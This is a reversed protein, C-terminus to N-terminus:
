QGRFDGAPAAEDKFRQDILNMYRSATENDDSDLALSRAFWQRAAAYDHILAYHWGICSMVYFGNPDLVEAQRFQVDAEAHRGLWDLCMGARLPNYVYYPNLTSSRRYDQLAREALEKYNDTEAFSNVRWVEALDYRTKFNQPEVAAAQLLCAAEASSVPVQADARNLWLTERTRRWGQLSLYVVGALLVVTLCGKLAPGPTVWWRETAFRQQSTLLAVWTLGLAANAPIHLNFDMVSHLSLGLLAGGAGAFFAFRNSYGSNFDAEARQIHPWTKALGIVFATLGALVILGGVTGWDALLNLYDNHARDPQLQMREPRYARFRWDYHAPGAGFWFNDRWINVAAQWMDLRMDLDKRSADSVITQVNQDNIAAAHDFHRYGVYGTGGLLLVLLLVSLLRHHRHTALLVLTTVVGAGTALWGGRSLTVALGAGMMLLAYGLFVRAAAPLRGAVLFALAPPILLELFCSFNNPSVYTGFARGPYPSYHGWIFRVHHLHQYIALFSIITALAVLVFTAAQLAEQRFLHNMVAFFFFGLVLVQIMEQRAVYEIDATLYRAVAYVMFALAVWCIPPWFLQSRPGIWLRAGWVLLVAILLGQVVLFQAAHVAGLGVPGFVLIVLLLGLLIQGLVSDWTKRNFSM